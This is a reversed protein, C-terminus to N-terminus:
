RSKKGFVSFGAAIFSGLAALMFVIASLHYIARETSVGSPAFPVADGQLDLAHGVAYFGAGFSRFLM